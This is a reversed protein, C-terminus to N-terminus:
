VSRFIPYEILALSLLVIRHVKISESVSFVVEAETILEGTEGVLQDVKVEEDTVLHGQSVLHSRVMCCERLQFHGSYTDMLGQLNDSVILRM